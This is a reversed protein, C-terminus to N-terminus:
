EPSLLAMTLESQPSHTTLLLIQDRYPFARLHRVPLPLRFPLKSWTKKAPDFVEVEDSETLADGRKVSGGLLYLKGGAPILDGSLRAAPCPMSEFTETQLDFIQCDPALEFNEKMGGVMYYKDAIQAGAFARRPGPLTVELTEFTASSPARRWISRDHEFANKRSPDYNLGGLVFLGRENQAVGFQTRGRPFAGDESWRGEEAYFRFVEAHSVAQSEPSTLPEHGFGGLALGGGETAITQMSQRRYPFPAAETFTLTALDFSWGESTFHEREFDHQERSRNGGFLYVEEGSVFYGQRNKASMPSEVTLQGYSLGSLPIKEIVRTRGRTHMGGIGGLAVLEGGQPVLQHFFRGYALTRVRIWEKDGPRYSYLIGERGSAYVRDGLSSAAIGFADGPFDPASSWQGSRADYVDTKATPRGEESMGGVVVLNQGVGAVALARRQFPAPVAKWTPTKSSLDLLALESTFVGSDPRGSLSWGGTVYVTSGILAAAHSSRPAPLDPLQRWTKKDLDLCLARASSKMITAESAANEAHSGGFTCLERGFLVSALGQLGEPLEAINQWGAEGSRYELVAKSQGERSYAHPTGSYGGVVYLADSTAAAGFSTVAVPLPPLLAGSTRVKDAVLVRPESKASKDHVVSTQEPESAARPAPSSAPPPTQASCAALLLAAYGLLPASLSPFRKMLNGQPM